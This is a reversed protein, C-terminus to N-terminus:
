IVLQKRAEDVMGHSANFLASQANQIERSITDLDKAIAQRKWATELEENAAAVAAIFKQAIEKLKDAERASAELRQLQDNLIAAETIQTHLDPMDMTQAIERACEDIRDFDKRSVDIKDALGM